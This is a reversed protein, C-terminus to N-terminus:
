QIRSEAAPLWMDANAGFYEKLPDAIANLEEIVEGDLVTGAAEANRHVQNPNRAGVIVSSVAENAILWAIAVNAMPRGLRDAVARIQDLADFTLQERGSEGHRAGERTGAFHRTRRRNPPVDGVSRWRGALLGQLLPMYALVGVGHRACAPMIELEIARFLLNYGLQNSCCTGCAMWADLDKAGFNSVGIARIKGEERLRAMEGYADEFPVDRCPWHIQYLDIVDTGLRMLSQECSRRLDRPPAHNPSVKSAILAEHRRPGLAQGLIRESEGGGYSEATDFLNIGDDLATRVAAEADAEDDAGWYGTDGLQWAGFSLVSVELDSHGLKRYMM